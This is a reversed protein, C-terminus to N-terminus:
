VMMFGEPEWALLFAVGVNKCRWDANRTMGLGLRQGGFGVKKLFKYISVM